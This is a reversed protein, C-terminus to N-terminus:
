PAPTTETAPTTTDTPAPAPTMPETKKECGAIFGLGLLLALAVLTKM